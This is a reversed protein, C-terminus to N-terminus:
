TMMTPRDSNEPELVDDSEARLEFWFTTGAGDITDFGVRGGLREVISRVISLGLGTGKTRGERGAIQVFKGFIRERYDVPIGPGQDRVSVRWGFATRALSLEVESGEPSFKAANSLLNTLVQTVRGADVHVRVPHSAQHTDLMAGAIFRVGLADGFPRNLEIAELAIQALDADALTMEVSGSEIKQLDLMDNVIRVLREGNSDAIRVLDELEPSLAGAVGGLALGLAGRISTLPTRLEHSVISLFENKMRDAALRERIDQAVLVYGSPDGDEDQTATVMLSAPTRAGSRHLAVTELQEPTEPGALAALLAADGPNALSAISASIGPLDFLQPLATHGVVHHADLGFLREAGRSFSHVRGELDTAVIALTSAARMVGRLLQLAELHRQHARRLASLNDRMSLSGAIADGVSAITALAARNPVLPERTTLCLVAIPSGSEDVVRLLCCGRPGDARQVVPESALRVHARLDELVHAGAHLLGFACLPLLAQAEAMPAGVVASFWSRRDDLLALIGRADPAYAAVALHVLRGLQADTLADLRGYRALTTVHTAAPTSPHPSM